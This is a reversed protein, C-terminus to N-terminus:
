EDLVRASPQNQALGILRYKEIAIFAVPHAMGSSDPVVASDKGKLRLRDDLNKRSAIPRSGATELRWELGRM